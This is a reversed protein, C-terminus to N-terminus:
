HNSYLKNYSEICKKLVENPNSFIQNMGSPLEIYEYNYGKGTDKYLMSYISINESGDNGEVYKLHFHVNCLNSSEIHIQDYTSFFCNTVEATTTPTPFKTIVLVDPSDEKYNEVLQQLENSIKIM